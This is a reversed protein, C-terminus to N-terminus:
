IKELIYRKFWNTTGDPFLLHYSWEDAEDIDIIKGVKEFCRQLKEGSSPYRDQFQSDVIVKVYDGIELEKELEKEHITGIWEGPFIDLIRKWMEKKGGVLYTAGLSKKCM